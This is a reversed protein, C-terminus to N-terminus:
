SFSVSCNSYSQLFSYVGTQFTFYENRSASDKLTGNPGNQIWRFPLDETMRISYRRLEPFLLYAKDKHSALLQDVESKKAIVEMPFFSNLANISQMEVVEAKPLDKLSLSKVKNLWNFDAQNVPKQYVVTPYNASGKTVYPMYFLYYMGKGAQPEFILEGTERTINSRYVNHIRHLNADTVIINIDEPHHDRRRWDVQVKVAEAEVPVNLVVRHNGLTDPNWKGTAYKLNQAYIGVSWALCLCCLFCFRNASQFLRILSM